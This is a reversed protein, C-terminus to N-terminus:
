AWCYETIVLYGPTGDGGAVAGGANFSFGGSGGAGRGTANGGANTAIVGSAGSGVLTSGGYGSIGTTVAAAGRSATSGNMGPAAIDGTGATGGAGGAGATGGTSGGGGSGGNAVLLTSGLTTAAGANGNNNGASGGTGAAGIDVALNPLATARSFTLRSYGGAGGGGGGASTTAAGTATGGGGGGGGWGEAVAYVMNAHPTYTGDGTFVQVRIVAFTTQILAFAGNSGTNVGLATAVGTGLGDLDGVDYGTCNGLDGSAPTGLAGNFLVISGATGTNIALATAVGTGLGDLDGVDYGTCNGLDGATPTGLDPTIFTPSNQFVLAGTGTESTVAARLNDASPTALFAAVNTGLGTISGVAPTVTTDAAGTIRGKADISMVVTQTASGYGGAVVATDELGITGVSTIPSPTAVTEGAVGDISTVTGAGATTWVLTTGDTGLVEGPAGVPWRAPGVGDHYYIDGETTLPSAYAGILQGSYTVDGVVNIGSADISLESGGAIGITVSTPSGSIGGAGEILIAPVAPSGGDPLLIRDFTAGGGIFIPSEITPNVNFVLAGTGTVPFPNGQADALTVPFGGQPVITVYQSPISM